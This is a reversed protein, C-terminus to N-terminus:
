HHFPTESPSDTLLWRSGVQIPSMDEFERSKARYDFAERHSDFRKGHAAERTFYPVWGDDSVGMAYLPKYPEKPWLLKGDEGYPVFVAASTEAVVVSESPQTLVIRWNSEEQEPAVTIGGWNMSAIFGQAVALSEFSAFVETAFVPTGDLTGCFYNM